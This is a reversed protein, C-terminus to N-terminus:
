PNPGELTALARRLDEREPNAAIARRFYHRARTTEGLNAYHVALGALAKDDRPRLRLTVRYLDAAEGAREQRHLLVALNLHASAHTADAGIAQRYAAEAATFDAKRELLVGHNYAASADHPDRRRVSALAELAEAEFGMDSLLIARDVAARTRDPDLRLASQCAGVAEPRRGQAELVNGMLHHLAASHPRIELAGQLVRSAEETQGTRWAAEALLLASEEGSTPLDPVPVIWALVLGPVALGVATWATRRDGRRAARLIAEVGLAAGALLAPTMTMRYRGGTVFLTLAATTGLPMWLFPALRARRVWVWAALAFPAVMGFHVLPLRMVPTLMRLEPLDPGSPIDRSNWSLVLKRLLLGLARAPQTRAFHLAQNRFYKSAGTHSTIGQRLPRNVVEEYPKGPRLYCTGTAEPNNGVYLNLGGHAQLVVFEGSVALNRAAVPLIPLLFLGALRLYLGWHPSGHRRTGRYAAWALYPLGAFLSIPHTVAALGCLLASVGLPGARPGGRGGPGHALAWCFLVGALLVVVLVECFLEASYYIVPQYLAWLWATVVAARLGVLRWVALATLGLATVDLLLQVLRVAPISLGTIRYVAALFLPYLPAHIHLRDWLPGGALLERAWADYERADAGVAVRGLPLACYQAWYLLRLIVAAALALVLLAALRRRRAQPFTRGLWAGTSM